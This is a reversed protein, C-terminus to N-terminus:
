TIFIHIIFVIDVKYGLSSNNVYNFSVEQPTGCELPVFQIGNSIDTIPLCMLSEFILLLQQYSIAM